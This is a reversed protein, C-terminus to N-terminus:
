VCTNSQESHQNQDIFSVICQLTTKLMKMDQKNAADVTIGLPVKKCDVVIQVESLALNLETQHHSKNASKCKEGLAKYHYRRYCTM